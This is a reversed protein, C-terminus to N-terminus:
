PGEVSMLEYIGHKNLLLWLENSKHYLLNPLTVFIRLIDM